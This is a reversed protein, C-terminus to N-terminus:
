ITESTPRGTHLRNVAAAHEDIVDHHVTRLLVFRDLIAACRPLHECVQVGPIATDIADYYSGATKTKPDGRRKPDWTDIHCAGGGLRIFICHEAKGQPLSPETNEALATGSLLPLGLGAAGGTLASQVLFDRRSLSPHTM